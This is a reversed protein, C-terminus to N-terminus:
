NSKQDENFMDEAQENTQALHGFNGEVQSEEMGPEEEVHSVGRARAKVETKFRTKQKPGSQTEEDNRGLKKEIKDISLSNEDVVLGEKTRKAQVRRKTRTFQRSIYSMGASSRQLDGHASDASSRQGAVESNQAYVMNISKERLAVENMGERTFEKEIENGEKM